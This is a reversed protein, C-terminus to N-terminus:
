KLLSWLRDYKVAFNQYRTDSVRAAISDLPARYIRFISQRLLGRATASLNELESITRSFQPTLTQSTAAGHVRGIFYLDCSAKINWFQYEAFLAPFNFEARFDKETLNSYYDIGVAATGPSHALTTRSTGHEIRGTSGCTVVVYGDQATMRVMNRFTEKWFPNHEFCECSLVVDFSGDPLDLEHGSRAVDVGPGHALDAGVYARCRGIIKRITGNVDYSGIELVRQNVVNPLLRNKVIEILRLQERHAM